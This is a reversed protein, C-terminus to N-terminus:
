FYFIGRDIYITDVPGTKIVRAVWNGVLDTVESLIVSETAIDYLDTEVLKKYHDSAQFQLLGGNRYVTSFVATRVDYNEISDIKTHTWNIKYIDQSSQDSQQKSLKESIKGSKTFEYQVGGLIGYESFRFLSRIKNRRMFEKNAINTKYSNEFAFDSLLVESNDARVIECFRKVHGELGISDISILKTELSDESCASFLLLLISLLGKSM